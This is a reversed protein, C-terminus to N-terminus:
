RSTALSQVSLEGAVPMEFGRNLYLRHVFLKYTLNGFFTIPFRTGAALARPLIRGVKFTERYAWRFGEYLEVPSMNKPRYVVNMTNYDAWNYSLIRKEEELRKFLRTGPYPTYISYRPIDIKLEQVREVTQRFIDRTDHDFGFVFCGQVIIGAQHMQRMVEAYHDPKNFRKAISGLTESNASEFGILLYQCGSKVMLDFLEPDEIVKTTSLGGWKKKLPIMARFLEKAYEVDDVPSVDNLAFRKSPISRIDRIVEGVPRRIYRNGWIVPVACFDCSHMCGRTAQITYPMMYGSKRQLDYRPAPIPITTYRSALKEERYEARLKGERFDRLLQPWLGDAMGIVLSDAFPRAEEPLITAHVGGLVVPIKRGRFHEALAYARRATGTMVSIGVLDAPFDLPVRDVSEDILRYEISPDDRTLAALTTLTLPAERASRVFSGFRFKHMGADPMILLIKM